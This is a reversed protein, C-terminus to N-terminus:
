PGLLGLPSPATFEVRLVKQGGPLVVTETSAPRLQTSVTGLDAIMSRVYPSGGPRAAQDNEALDAYRFPIDPDEGPAINGFDVIDIPQDAALDAIALLLRSDVQGAMLQNRATPSAAIDPVELLAAASTKRAMLDASAAAQYAAAGQPAMVRVTIEANGSGFSALVAPSWASSLSFGFLSRVVATVVVVASTVPYPATPGLVLLNRSPFGDAALATCMQQDCSVIASHSVQQAVWSAAQERSITELRQLAAGPERSIAWSTVIYATVAVGLLGVAIVASVALRVTVFRRRGSRKWVSGQPRAPEAPVAIAPKRDPPMGIAPEPRVVPEASRAPEPEASREPEPEASRELEPEDSHAPKIARKRQGIVGDDPPSLVRSDAAGSATERPPPVTTHEHGQRVAGTREANVAAQMRQRLEEPLVRSASSAPGARAVGRVRLPLDQSRDEDGMYDVGQVIRM